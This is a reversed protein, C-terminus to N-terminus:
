AVARLCTGCIAAVRAAGVEPPRGAAAVLEATAGAGAGAGYRRVVGVFEEVDHGRIAYVPRGTRRNFKPGGFRDRSQAAHYLEHEVLACWDADEAETAYPASFTLMFDPLTEGFWAHLQALQRAKVWPMGRPTATECTGVIERMQRKARANTWLAGLRAPELHDHDPNRLTAGEGIFCARAWAIVEPAPVFLPPEHHYPHRTLEAPPQPRGGKRAAALAAAIRQREEAESAQRRETEADISPLLERTLLRLVSRPQGGALAARVKAAATEIRELSV